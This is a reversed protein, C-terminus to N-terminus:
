LFGLIGAQRGLRHYDETQLQKDRRKGSCPLFIVRDLKARHAVSSATFLHANTIPDFSSGYIGIKVM